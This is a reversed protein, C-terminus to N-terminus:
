FSGWIKIGFRKGLWMLSTSLDNSIRIQFSDKLDRTFTNANPM